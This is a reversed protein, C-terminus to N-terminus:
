IIYCVDNKTLYTKPMKYINATLKKYVKVIQPTDQRSLPRYIPLFRQFLELFCKVKINSYPIIIQRM